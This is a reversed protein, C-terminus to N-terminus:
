PLDMEYHFSLRKPSETMRRSDATLHVRLTDEIFPASISGSFVLAREGPALRGALLPGQAEWEATVPGAGEVPMVMFIRVQRGVWKRTDLRVNVKIRMVLRSNGSRISGPEWSWESVPPTVQSLSDDLRITEANAWLSLAALGFAGLRRLSATRRRRPARADALNM